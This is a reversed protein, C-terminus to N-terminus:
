ERQRRETELKAASELGKERFLLENAAEFEADEEAAFNMNLRLFFLSFSLCLSPSATSFFHCSAGGQRIQLILPIGGEEGEKM